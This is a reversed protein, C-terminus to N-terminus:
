MDLEFKKPLPNELTEICSHIFNLFIPEEGRRGGRGGLAYCRPDILLSPLFIMFRNVCMIIAM